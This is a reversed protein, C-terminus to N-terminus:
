RLLWRPLLRGERFSSPGPSGGVLVEDVVPTHPVPVLSMVQAFSTGIRAYVALVWAILLPREGRM